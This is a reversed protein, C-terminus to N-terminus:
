NSISIYFVFLSLALLIIIYFADFLDFVLFLAQLLSKDVYKKEICRYYISSDLELNIHWFNKCRMQKIIYYLYMISISLAFYLWSCCYASSIQITISYPNSGDVYICSFRLVLKWLYVLDLWFLFSIKWM